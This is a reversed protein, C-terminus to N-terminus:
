LKIKTGIKHAAMYCTNNWIVNSADIGVIEKKLVKRLEEAEYELKRIYYAIDNEIKSTKTVVDYVYENGVYDKTPSGLKKM